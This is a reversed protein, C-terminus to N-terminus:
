DDLYEELEKIYAEAEEQAKKYEKTRKDMTKMAEQLEEKEKELKKLRTHSSYTKADFPKQGELIPLLTCRCNPHLPPVRVNMYDNKEYVGEMKLVKGNLEACNPDVRDDEATLWQKAVVVDSKQWADLTAQNSTRIVETRTIRQAQSKSYDEFDERIQNRIKVISHGQSVGRAIIDIIKDRDTEIMSQTFLKVNKEILDRVSNSLYPSSDDILLLAQQGSLVAVEALIPTFDIQAQTLQEEENILAKSKMAPVEDPVNALAQEVMRDIFQKVKNEFKHELSEVIRIQKNHFDWVQENTFVPHERTETTTHKNARRAKVIRTAVTTAAQKIKQDAINKQVQSLMGSKRLYRNLNVNLASKPLNPIIEPAPRGLSDAGEEDSPDYGLEERAENTTIINAGALSVVGEIKGKRDEPVPDKFTLFINTGYRPVLFEQLTDTISKMESKITTRKWNLITAEANARNVDETVGLVSQSNGFISMIKDRLWQQMEIFQMDRNTLQVSKPELGGSLILVKSSNAAGTYNANLDAQLQKRQEDTLGHETSLFFNNILGRKFLGKNAEIAYIDTDIAESAAVVKSKGRYPNGPNPNKFHVIEEPEYEKVISKGSVNDTFKYRSIVAQGNAPDGLDLEVKDPQLLYVAKTNLGQGDLYWFADGTLNKHSCTLYFGDSASTFENFRDLLDLIPHSLVPDFVIEGGVVKTTYLEFEITAVEKAIVDNNKYVWGNNAAILHKSASKHTVLGFDVDVAGGLFAKQRPTSPVEAPSPSSLWGQGISRLRELLTM